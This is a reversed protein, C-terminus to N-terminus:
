DQADRAIRAAQDRLDETEKIWFARSGWDPNAHAFMADDRQRAQWALFHIMRYLRLPEILSLEGDDFRRFERYGDLLCALERGCESRAGPLMLWLDQVAPGRAMDDFDIAVLGEGPRELLNGRHLDGHLPIQAAGAVLPASAEISALALEGFEAACDPHALPAIEALRAKAWGPDLSERESADIGSGAAHMRGILAGVRLWDEDREADFQRGARKPFVAFRFEREEGQDGEVVLYGLTSGGILRLPAVVPVEAAELALTLRHEALIAGESWRQPRYFKAIAEEERGDREVRVGFVRNVYSSYPRPVDAVPLGTSREIAECIADPSLDDFAGKM